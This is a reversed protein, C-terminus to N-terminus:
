GLPPVERFGLQQAFWLSDANAWYEAILGDVVRLIDTGYFVVRRGVAEPSAGPIGGAYTGQAHWRLVEFSGDVVPGVQITFTLDPFAARIGSVWTNLNDRGTSDQAPGGLLPAAHSVFDEHVTKDTLSLNGNWIDAWSQALASFNVSM